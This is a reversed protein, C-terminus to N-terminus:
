CQARAAIRADLVCILCSRVGSVGQRAGSRGQRGEREGDRREGALWGGDAGAVRSRILLRIPASVPPTRHRMLVHAPGGARWGGHELAYVIGPLAALLPGSSFWAQSRRLHCSRLLGAM